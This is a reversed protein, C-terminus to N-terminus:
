QLVIEIQVSIWVLQGILIEFNGFSFIKGTKLFLVEVEEKLIDLIQQASNQEEQDLKVSNVTSTLTNMEHHRRAGEKIGYQM